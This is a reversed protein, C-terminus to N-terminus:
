INDNILVFQLTWYDHISVHLSKKVLVKLVSIKSIKINMNLTDEIM